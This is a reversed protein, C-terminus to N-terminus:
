SRAGGSSAARDVRVTRRTRLRVVIAVAVLAPATILASVSLVSLPIRLGADGGGTGILAGLNVYRAESEPLLSSLYAALLGFVTLVVAAVFLTIQGIVRM